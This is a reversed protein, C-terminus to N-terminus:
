SRALHRPHAARGDLRIRLEVEVIDGLELRERSRVTDRIQVVYRGDRPWLSPDFESRGIRVRVPIMGWGYTVESAITRLETCGADPVSVFHYPSPGRWYWIEGAFELHVSAPDIM